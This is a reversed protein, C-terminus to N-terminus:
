SRKKVGRRAKDQKLSEDGLDRNSMRETMNGQEGTRQARM